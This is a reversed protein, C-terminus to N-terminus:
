CYLKSDGKCIKSISIILFLCYVERSTLDITFVVYCTFNFNDGRPCYYCYSNTNIRFSLVHFARLVCRFKDLRDIDIILTECFHHKLPTSIKSVGCREWM